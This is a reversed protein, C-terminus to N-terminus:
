IVNFKTQMKKANAKGQELINTKTRGFATETKVSANAAQNIIFVPTKKPSLSNLSPIFNGM